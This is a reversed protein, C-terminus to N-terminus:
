EEERAIEVRAGNSNGFVAGDYMMETRSPPQTFSGETTARVRFYFDYTGEPLSDYYFAVQDDMFAVYTPALTLAKSPRAEPPATALNPNLPELGAALSAVVAVYHREKPNVVQLHEEIVDGVRFTIRTGPADIAFRELPEDSGLFRGLERTVVFGNSDAAVQSGDASPVYSTEARLVVPTAGGGPLWTVQGPAASTNM